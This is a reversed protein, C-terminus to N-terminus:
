DLFTWSDAGDFHRVQIEAVEARPAMRFNIGYKPEPVKDTTLYHTLCGCKQCHFFEICEDGFRYSKASPMSTGLSDAMFTLQVENPKYYGWLAGYRHCISCNCSTLTAPSNAVKIKVNGCHCMLEM